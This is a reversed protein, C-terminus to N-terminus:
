FGSLRNESIRGRKGLYRMTKSKYDAYDNEFVVACFKEEQLIQIHFLTVCALAAAMNIINPFTVACGIYLLDFGVFAPNRSYQYIGNTVLTTNQNNDFGARWNNRMTLMAVIFILNGLLIMVIGIIRVPFTVPFSWVCEPFVVSGFQIVAGALTTFRLFMEIVLAKRPKNGKGLLNVNIGQRKLAVAKLFYAIYYVSLLALSIIQIFDMIM